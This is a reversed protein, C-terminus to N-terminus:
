ASIVDSDDTAVKYAASADKKEERIGGLEGGIKGLDAKKAAKMENNIGIQHVILQKLAAMDSPLKKALDAASTGQM